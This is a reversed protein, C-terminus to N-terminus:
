RNGDLFLESMREELIAVRGDLGQAPNLMTLVYLGRKAGVGQVRGPNHVVEGNQVVVMHGDGEHVVSDVEGLHIGDLCWWYAQVGPEVDRLDLFICSLGRPRLWEKFAAFWTEDTLEPTTADFAEELPIEFISALAAQFCNGQEEPKDKSGGFRTQKIPIM